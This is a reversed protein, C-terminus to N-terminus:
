AMTGIIMCGFSVWGAVAVAYGAYAGIIAGGTFPAAVIAVLGAVAGVKSVANLTLDKAREWPSCSNSEALVLDLTFRTDNNNEDTSDSPLQKYKYVGDRPFCMKCRPLQNSNVYDNWNKYFRATHDIFCFQGDPKIV